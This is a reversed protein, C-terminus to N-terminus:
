YVCLEFPIEKVRLILLNQMCAPSRFILPWPGMVTLPSWDPLSFPIIHLQVSLFSSSPSLILLHFILKTTKILSHRLGHINHWYYLAKWLHCNCFSNSFFFFFSNAAAKRRSCHAAFLGKFVWISINLHCCFLKPKRQIKSIVEKLWVPFHHCSMIEDHIDTKGMGNELWYQYQLPTWLLEGNCSLLM